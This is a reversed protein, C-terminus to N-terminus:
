VRHAVRVVLSGYAENAHDLAQGTSRTNIGLLATVLTIAAPYNPRTQRPPHRHWAGNSSDASAANSWTRPLITIIRLGEAKFVESFATILLPDCDHILFRLTDILHGLDVALNRAQQVTWAGTSNASM